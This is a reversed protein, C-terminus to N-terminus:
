VPPQGIPRLRRAVRAADDDPQESEAARALHGLAGM